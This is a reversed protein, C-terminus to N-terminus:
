KLRCEILAQDGAKSTWVKVLRLGASDLLTEFGKKSREKGGSLRILV